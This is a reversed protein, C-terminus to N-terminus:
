PLQVQHPPDQHEALFLPIGVWTQDQLFTYPEVAPNTTNKLFHFDAGRYKRFYDPDFDNLSHPRPQTAIDASPVTDTDNVTVTEAVDIGADSDDMIAMVSDNSITSCTEAVDTAQASLSLLIIISLLYSKRM